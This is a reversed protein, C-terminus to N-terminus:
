EGDTPSQVASPNLQQFLLWVEFNMGKIKTLHKPYQLRYQLLETTERELIEM